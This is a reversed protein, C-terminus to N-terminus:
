HVDAIVRESLEFVSIRTSSYNVTRLSYVILSNWSEEINGM